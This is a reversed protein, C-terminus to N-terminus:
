PTKRVRVRVFHGSGVAPQVTRYVVRELTGPLGVDVQSELNLYAPPSLADSWAQLNAAHDLEYVLDVPPKRRVFTIRLDNGALSGTPIGRDASSVHRDSLLPNLNYAYEGLNTLGDGDPDKDPGSIEPDALQAPTFVDSAWAAYTQGAPADGVTFEASLIAFDGQPNVALALPNIFQADVVQANTLSIQFTAGAPATPSLSYALAWQQTSNAEIVPNMNAFTLRGNDASFTVPGALLSDVSTLMGNQDDDRYLRAATVATQDPLTGTTDFTMSNVRVDANLAKLLLLFVPSQVAGAPISSQPTSDAREISFGVLTTDGTGFESTSGNGGHTATMTIIPHRLSGLLSARWHGTPGVTAEGLFADGEPDGADPDTFLQILSGPPTVALSAVNGSVSKGDFALFVPPPQLNNGGAEHQIGKGLNGSIQNYLIRNGTTSGGVVRVGAQENALILNGLPLSTSILVNSVARMVEALGGIYNDRAGAELRVGDGNNPQFNGDRDLGIRNNFFRNSVCATGGLVIGHTYNSIVINGNIRAPGGIENNAANTLYMGMAGRGPALLGIENNRVRNHSTLSLALGAWNPEDRFGFAHILNGLGPDDGGLLNGQGGRVVLGANFSNTIYFGQVVNSSSDSLYVGLRNVYLTNRTLQSEGVVHGSSATLLVGVGGSPTSTLYDTFRYSIGLGPGEIFNNEIRNRQAPGALHNQDIWIGARFWGRIRNGLEPTRGGIVNAEAGAGLKLGAGEGSPALNGNDLEGLHNAQIVNAGSLVGDTGVTGSANEILVGAEACSNIANWGQVPSGLPDGPFRPVILRAGPLGITNNRPGDHIWVGIRPRNPNGALLVWSSFFAGIQNGFVLNNDTGTGQLEIGADPCTFIANALDANHDGITNDRAGNRLAIGSRGNASFRLGAAGIYPDLVGIFQANVTNFATNAGELLVGDDRNGSISGHQGLSVLRTGVLNYQAGETLRIGSGENAITLSTGGEYLNVGAFTRDVVNNSCGPGQLLVGDGQNGLPNLYRLVNGVAGPGLHAGATQNNVLDYRRRLEETPWGFFNNSAGGLYIGAAQCNRITGPVINNFSAGNDLRIGNGGCGTIVTYPSLPFGGGRSSSMLNRETGVGTFHVGHGAVNTVACDRLENGASGGEVLFGSGCNVVSIGELSSNQAGNRLHVGPGSFNRIILSGSVRVGNVGDLVLGSTGPPTGTGDLVVPQGAIGFQYHVRERLPPLAGMITLNGDFTITHVPGLVTQPEDGYVFDTERAQPPCYGPDDPPLLECPLHQEIQRGLQGAIILFAEQVSVKGDAVNSFDPQNVFIGYGPAEGHPTQYAPYEVTFPFSAGTQGRLKIALEHEGTELNPPVRFMMRAGSGDATLGISQYSSDINVEYERALENDFGLGRLELMAGPRVPDPFVSTITPPLLFRFERFRPSLAASSGVSNTNGREVVVYARGNPFDTAYDWWPVRAAISTNSNTLVELEVRMTYATPDDTSAFQRFSVSLGNTTNGFNAGQITIVEGGRGATPFFSTIRPAFPNGVVVVTREVALTGGNVLGTVREVGQAVASIKSLVNLSKGVTKAVKTGYEDAGAFEAREMALDALNKLTSSAATKLLDYLTDKSAINSGHVALGKVVDEAVGKMLKTVGRELEPKNGMLEKVLEQVGGIGSILDVAAVFINGGLSVAWTTRANLDTILQSQSDSGSLFATGYYICGSHAEAVYVGPRLAPITTENPKLVYPDVNRAFLWDMVAGAAMDLLDLNKTFLTAPVTVTQLTGYPQRVPNATPSLASVSDFGNTFQNPDLEYLKVFWDLPNEFPKFRGASEFGAVFDDPRKPTPGALTARLRRLGVNGQSTEPPDLYRLKTGSPTGPEFGQGTVPAEDPPAIALLAEIANVWASEVSADDLYDRGTASANGIATVFASFEPLARLPGLYNTYRPLAGGNVAPNLLVLAEATSTADVVPQNTAPHVLALFAPATGNRFAWLVPVGEQDVGSNFHGTGSDVNVFDGGALVRYGARSVGGPPDFTGQIPREVTFPIPNTYWVGAVQVAVFGSPAVPVTFNVQTSATLTVAASVGGLQVQGAGQLGTGYISATSGPIGSAPSLGQLVVQAQSSIFLLSSCASVLIAKRQMNCDPSPLSELWEATQTM